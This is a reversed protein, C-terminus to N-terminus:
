CGILLLRWFDIFLLMTFWVTFFLFSNAIMEESNQFIPALPAM